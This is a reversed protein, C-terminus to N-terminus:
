HCLLIAADHVAVNCAGAGLLNDLESTGFVAGTVEVDAHLELRSAGTLTVDATDVVYGGADIAADALTAHLAPGGNGHVIIEGLNRAELELDATVDDSLDIRARDGEAAAFRLEPVRVTARPFYTPSYGGSPADVFVHLVDIVAGRVTEQRVETRILEVVNADSSVLVSLGTGGATVTASIGEELRLGTFAGISSTRDEEHFVGNGQVYPHCAALAAM